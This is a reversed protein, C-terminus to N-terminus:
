GRRFVARDFGRILNICMTIAVVPAWAVRSDIWGIDEVHELAVWALTGECLSLFGVSILGSMFMGVWNAKTVPEDGDDVFNPTQFGGSGGKPEFAWPRMPENM